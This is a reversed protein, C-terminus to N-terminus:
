VFSGPTEPGDRGVLGILSPTGSDGDPNGRLFLPTKPGDSGALGAFSATGSDGDPDPNGNLFGLM